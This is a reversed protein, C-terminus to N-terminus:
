GDAAGPTRRWINRASCSRSRVLFVGGRPDLREIGTELDGVPQLNKGVDFAGSAGAEAVREADGTEGVHVHNAIGRQAFGRIDRPHHQM